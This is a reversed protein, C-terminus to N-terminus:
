PMPLPNYFVFKRGPDYKAKLETLRAYNAGYIDKLDEDGRAYNIYANADGGNSEISEVMQDRLRKGFENALADLCANNSYTIIPAFIARDRRQSFATAADSKKEVAEWGYAELIVFSNRLWEPANSFTSFAKRVGDVDWKRSTVGYQFHSADKQCVPGNIDAGLGANIGRFDTTRTSMSVPQLYRLPDTYEPPISNGQWLVFVNIVPQVILMNNTLPDFGFAATHSLEVPPHPDALWDNSLGVIRELADGTFTFQAITWNKTRLTRPYTKVKLETAIGFNHGAGRIAWFLDPLRSKSTTVVTGNGLVVRAQILQDAILGYRGQLYGHGGGLLPAAYGVCDCAGAAVLPKLYLCRTKLLLTKGTERGREKLSQTVEGILAGGGISAIDGRVTVKNLGRLLIGIGGKVNNLAQHTGHGGSIAFFPIGNDSALRVTHQVDSETYVKVIAEFQPRIAASWRMSANIFCDSGPLCIEARPSLNDSLDTFSVGTLGLVPAILAALLCNLPNIVRLVTMMISCSCTTYLRNQSAVPIHTFAVEFIHVLQFSGHPTRSSDRLSRM